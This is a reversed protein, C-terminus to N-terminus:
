AAIAKLQESETIESELVANADNVAKIKEKVAERILQSRPIDLFEATKVLEDYFDETIRLNLLLPKKM